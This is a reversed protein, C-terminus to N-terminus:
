EQSTQYHLGVVKGCLLATLSLPKTGQWWAYSSACAQLAKTTVFGLKTSYTPLLKWRPITDYDQAEPQRSFSRFFSKALGAYVCLLSQFTGSGVQGGCSERQKSSYHDTLRLAMKSESAQYYTVEQISEELCKWAWMGSPSGPWYLWTEALSERKGWRYIGHSPCQPTHVPAVKALVCRRPRGQQPCLSCFQFCARFYQSHKRVELFPWLWREPM